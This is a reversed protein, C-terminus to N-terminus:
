RIGRRNLEARYKNANRNHEALTVAFNHRGSFDEKACMYIYNHNTYNLVAEMSRVSPMRLPGPPLGTYIYTNYSSDIEKHINLIRKLGFDGAAFKLTPDAQLLMGKHLRNIYLGAVVPYEDPVATEEEVISALIAVEIPTLGIQSAKQKRADTWFTDYEKKMRQIFREPSINWYVEYTNPIFMASVTEPTFGITKLYEPDRLYTLIDEKSFMLQDDLRDALDDIFRINNFTIRVATQQGRRLQKLLEIHSMGPEVAYRGTKMNEPYKLQQAVMKFDGTRKMHASDVLQRCLDEFNKSDDVFVYTTKQIDFDPAYLLRYAWFGVGVGLLVIIGVIIGIISRKSIKQSSM